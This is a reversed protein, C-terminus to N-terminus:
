RRPHGTRSSAGADGAPVVRATADADRREDDHFDAAARRRLLAGAAAAGAHVAAAPEAGDVLAALVGACFRDGAGIADPVPLPEDLRLWQEDGRWWFRAGAAGHTEVVLADAAVAIRWDDGLRQALFETEDSSHVIVASRAALAHALPEPFSGPDAKVSWFISATPAAALAHLCPEPAGVAAVLWDAKACIQEQTETLETALKGGPDYVCYSAGSPAYPLWSVGTSRLSREIGAVDVGAEALAAAVVDGELDDGTYSIVAADIGAEVLGTAIYSACGGLRGSTPTHRRCVLSTTGAAIDRNLAVIHDLNVYGLVVVRTV